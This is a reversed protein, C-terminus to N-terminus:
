GTGRLHDVAPRAMALYLEEAEARSARGRVVLEAAANLAAMAVAAHAVCQPAPAGTRQRLLVAVADVHADQRQRRREDVVDEGHSSRWLAIFTPGLAEVADFYVRTSVELWDDEVSLDALRHRVEDDFHDATDELLALLLGARNGFYTYVLNKSVGAAGAVDHVSIDSSGDGLLQATVELLHTRREDPQLRRGRTWPTSPPM